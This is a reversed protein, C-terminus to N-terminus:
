VLTNWTYEFLYKHMAYLYADDIIVGIIRKPDLTVYSIKGDYIQMVNKFPEASFKLFRTDTVAQHYDALYKRAAPTDLVIVKKKLKLKERKVVYAENIKPIEEMVAEVDAYSYIESSATLSDELVKKIGEKGEFYSVAPRQTVLRYRSNLAPLTEALSGSVAELERKKQFFLDELKNPPSPRFNTIKNKEFSEVLGHQELGKILHYILTRKIGTREALATASGDGHDLLNQYIAAEGDSLGLRTFLNNIM